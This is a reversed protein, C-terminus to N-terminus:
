DKVTKVAQDIQGLTEKLKKLEQDVLKLVNELREVYKSNDSTKSPVKVDKRSNVMAAIDKEYQTIATTANDNQKKIDKKHDAQDKDKVDKKTTLSHLSDLSPGLGKSFAPFRVVTFKAAIHASSMDATMRDLMEWATKADKKATKWKAHLDKFDPM